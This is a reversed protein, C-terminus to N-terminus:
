AWSGSTATQATPPTGVPREIDIGRRLLKRTYIGGYSLRRALWTAIGAALMVPLMLGYAGTMEIVSAISTLPTQAAAAALPVGGSGTGRRGIRSRGRM